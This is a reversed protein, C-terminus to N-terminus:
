ASNESGTNVFTEITDGEETTTVIKNPMALLNKLEEDLPDQSAAM